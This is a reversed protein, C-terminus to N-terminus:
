RQELVPNKIWFFGRLIAIILLAGLCFGIGTTLVGFNKILMPYATTVLGGGIFPSMFPCGLAYVTGADTEMKPDTTRLLMYGVAAVGTFAGYRIIGHEFWNDTFVHPSLWLMFFFVMVAIIVISGVLLPLWYALIVPISISAMAAVVLIELAIGQLRQFINRDLLNRWSTSQIVRNVIWGGIMAFPFLPLSYHLFTKFAYVIEWGILISMGIVGLHLAFPEIVDSSVTAYSSPIRAEEPYMETSAGFNAPETLVKTYRKRVGYNIVIMGGIIGAMLGITATTKGVDGGDPWGLSNFVQVMGGATGHGGAFGVEFVSGFMPEVGLIPAFIFATLLCTIGVQLFSCSWLWGLGAITNHTMAANSEKQRKIGLLMCAFVITIMQGPLAGFSSMMDAPIVKLFHPGLLLGIIGALLSAPIFLRKLLDIKLRIITAVFLLLGIVSVYLLLNQVTGGTIKVIPLMKQVERRTNENKTFNQSQFVIVFM